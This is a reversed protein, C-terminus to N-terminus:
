VFVDSPRMRLSEGIPDATDGIENGIQAAQAKVRIGEIAHEHNNRELQNSDAIGRTSPSARRASFAPPRIPTTAIASVRSLFAM